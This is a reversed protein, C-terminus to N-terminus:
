VSMIEGVQVQKRRVKLSGRQIPRVIMNTQKYRCVAPAMTPTCNLEQQM